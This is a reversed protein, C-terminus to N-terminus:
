ERITKKRGGGRERKKESKSSIYKKEKMNFMERFVLLWSEKKRKGINKYKERERKECNIEKGKKWEKREGGKWEKEKVKKIEEREKHTYALIRDEIVAAYSNSKKLLLVM